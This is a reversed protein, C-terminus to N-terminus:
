VFSETLAKLLAKLGTIFPPEPELAKSDTIKAREKCEDRIFGEVRNWLLSQNTELEHIPKLSEMNLLIQDYVKVFDRLQELEPKIQYNTGLSAKLDNLTIRDLPSFIKGAIMVTEGAIFGDEPSPNHTIDRGPSILGFATEDKFDKSVTTLAIGTPADTFGSSM